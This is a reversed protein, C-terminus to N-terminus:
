SGGIYAWFEEPFQLHGFHILIMVIVSWFASWKLTSILEKLHDPEQEVNGFLFFFVVRRIRGRKVWQFFAGEVNVSMTIGQRMMILGLVNSVWYTTIFASSFLDRNFGGVFIAVVYAVPFNVLFDKWWTLPSLMWGVFAMAGGVVKRM